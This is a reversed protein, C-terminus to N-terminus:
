ADAAESRRPPAPALYGVVLLLGGIAIFSVIRAVTGTNGLEVLFLKAVVVGMLGAGTMWFWRHARRAGFVMAIFALTGWYVSLAAQLLVSDFMPDIRWPVDGLHHVARLLALTSAFFAVGGLWIYANGTMDGAARLWYWTCLLAFITALDVPNVIPLYPLPAPDGSTSLNVYGVFIWQLALLALSTWITYARPFESVPWADKTRLWFAGLLMLGPVLSSASGPWVAGPAQQGLQWFIEVVLLLAVLVATVAHAVETTGPLAAAHLRLMWLQVSIAIPWAVWGFESFPHHSSLPYTAFLIVLLPLSVLAAIRGLQWDLRRAVLAMLLASLSFHAAMAAPHGGASTREAIERVGSGVWWAVGLVILARAIWIELEVWRGAARELLRASFFAAMSILLGGLLNGNLVPPGQLPQWGNDSFAVTSFVVLLVGAARALARDQQRGIWVLAAGELAWSASTWRADLALPVALTAFAVALAVYSDILLRLNPTKVRNLLTATTVYFIAAALASYALGFETQRLMVAQMAFVLVPTGFVLTGDVIGRMTLATRRTFLIAVGQYFLFFLVVFPQTSAYNAPEYRQWAWMGGIVFTFLFGILNLERWPRYWAVGLIMANLVLYYSFLVVHNGTDTSVLVPALFGGVVGLTALGRANQLVALAGGGITLAVLLAFAFVSPVLEYLRYAAFTTLYLIGLGGGQLSLAYVRTRERLRWGIALLVVAAGAVTLLRLEIPFAFLRHDVAYKLLFAVGFFSVVVGLKVPVNGTTLWQRAFRIAVELRNFSAGVPDAITATAPIPSVPPESPASPFRMPVPRAATPEWETWAPATEKPPASPPQPASRERAENELDSIRRGLQIVRAYVIGLGAGLVLGLFESAVSAVYLGLLAGVLALGIAM